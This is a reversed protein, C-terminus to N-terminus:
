LIHFATQGGNKLTKYANKIISNIYPSISDKYKKYKIEINEEQYEQEKVNFLKLAEKKNLPIRESLFCSQITKSISVCIVRISEVLLIRPSFNTTDLLRNTPENHMCLILVRKLSLFAQSYIYSKNVIFCHFCCSYSYLNHM